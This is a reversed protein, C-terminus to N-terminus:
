PSPHGAQRVDWWDSASFVSMLRETTYILANKKHTTKKSNDIGTLQLTVLSYVEFRIECYVRVLSTTAITILAMRTNSM